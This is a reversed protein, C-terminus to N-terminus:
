IRNKQVWCGLRLVLFCSFSTFVMAMQVEASFWEDLRTAPRKPVDKPHRGVDQVM